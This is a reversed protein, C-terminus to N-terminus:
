IHILSLERMAASMQAGVEDIMAEDIVYYRMEQHDLVVFEDGLFITSMEPEGASTVNDMRIKDDQAYFQTRYQEEGSSNVTVMEMAVGAYAPAALIGSALVFFCVIKRM